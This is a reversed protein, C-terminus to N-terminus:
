RSRGQKGQRKGKRRGKHKAHPLFHPGGYKGPSGDVKAKEERGGKTFGEKQRVHYQKGIHLCFGPRFKGPNKALFALLSNGLRALGFPSIVPVNVMLGSSLVAAKRSALVPFILLLKALLVLRELDIIRIIHDGQDALRIALVDGHRILRTVLVAYQDHREITTGISEHLILIPLGNLHRPLLDTPM